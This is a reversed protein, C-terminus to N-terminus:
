SCGFAENCAGQDCRQEDEGNHRSDPQVAHVGVVVVVVVVEAILGRDIRRIRISIVLTQRNRAQALLIRDTPAVLVAILTIDVIKNPIPTIRCEVLREDCHRSDISGIRQNKVSRQRVTRRRRTTRIISSCRERNALVSSVPDHSEDDYISDEHLDCATGVM